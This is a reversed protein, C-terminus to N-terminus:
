EHSISDVSQHLYKARNWLNDNERGGWKMKVQRHVCKHFRSNITAIWAYDLIKSTNSALQAHTRAQTYPLFRFALLKNIFTQSEKVVCHIMETETKTKKWKMENTQKSSLWLTAGFFFMRKSNPQIKYSVPSACFSFFTQIVSSFFCCLLDVIWFRISFLDYWCMNPHSAMNRCEKWLRRGVCIVRYHLVKQGTQYM